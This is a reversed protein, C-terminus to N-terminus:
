SSVAHVSTALLGCVNDLIRRLFLGDEVIGGVRRADPRNGIRAAILPIARVDRRAYHSSKTAATRSIVSRDEALNVIDDSRKSQM